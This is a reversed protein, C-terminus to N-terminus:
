KGQRQEALAKELEAVRKELRAIRELLPLPGNPDNVDIPQPVDCTRVMRIAQAVQDQMGTILISSVAGVNGITLSSGPSAGTSAFFPRLANTAVVANIHELKVATSVPMRLNPEALIAEPSRNVARNLIERGRPGNLNLVEYLNRDQDLVTLVLGNRALLTTLVERCGKQDTEIRQQLKVETGGNVSAIEQPSTLINCGLYKAADDILTALRVEGAEIVFPKAPVPTEQAFAAQTLFALLPLLTAKM